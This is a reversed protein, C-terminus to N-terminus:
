ELANEPAKRRNPHMFIKNELEFIQDTL